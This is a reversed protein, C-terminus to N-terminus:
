LIKCDYSKVLELWRMQRIKLEKQTFFYKLSKHDIYIECKYEYLYHKWIKLIFVVTTLELDHTPYRQEYKKLQRSAHAVVKGEEMLVCGLGNKSAYCYVM